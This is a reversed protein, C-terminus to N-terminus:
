WVDDFDQSLTSQFIPFVHTILTYDTSGGGAPWMNKTWKTERHIFEETRELQFGGKSCTWQLDKNRAQKWAIENVSM